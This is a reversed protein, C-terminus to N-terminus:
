IGLNNTTEAGEGHLRELDFESKDFGCVKCCVSHVEFDKSLIEHIIKAEDELGICFAIGLRKYEMGKAYLILEELRTKQMYYKSEIHASVRISQLEEGSVKIAKSRVDTCDKGEYCRKDNCLACKM